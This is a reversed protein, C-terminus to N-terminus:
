ARVCACVRENVYMCVCLPVCGKCKNFLFSLFTFRKKVVFGGNKKDEMIVLNM